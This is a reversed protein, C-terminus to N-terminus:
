LKDYELNEFEWAWTSNIINIQKTNFINNFTAWPPRNKKEFTTIKIQNIKHNALVQNIENEIGNEYYLIKNVAIKNDETYLQHTGHLLFKKFYFNIEETLNTKEKIEYTSMNVNQLQLIYFFHSLVSDYPNRVIVYSMINELDLLNKIESYSIHNYFIDKHNRPTHNINSPFIPTVISNEPLVKSLEVEVSTGGVKQNKILLFNHDKSYIM